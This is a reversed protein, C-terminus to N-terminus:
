KKFFFAVVDSALETLQWIINLLWLISATVDFPSWEEVAFAMNLGCLCLLRPTQHHIGVTSFTILFRRKELVQKRKKQLATLHCREEESDNAYRLLCLQTTLHSDSPPFFIMESKNNINQMHALFM